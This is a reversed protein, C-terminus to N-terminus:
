IHILSLWKCLSFGSKDLVLRIEKALKIARQEDSSGTTCDDMYFDNKIAHVAESYENEMATAGDLMTRVALYPSSSLGFTVVVLWYEKITDNPSERWFIRQLDWQERNIRVQLFMSKIDASVAIKHRRFRMITEYLNRQLKPGVFQVDNLSVGKDTACSGDFVVRFKGSTCVGHHPIYYVMDGPKPRETAEVMYGKAINEKMKQVYKERFDPERAFRKEQGFFRRLAVERSSGIEHM